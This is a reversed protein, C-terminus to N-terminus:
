ECAAGNLRFSVPVDTAVGSPKAGNLGFTIREGPEIRANWPLNTATVTTGTMTMQSSWHHAVSQGQPMDWELTWGDIPDPGINTIWMQSTFGTPWSGHVTYTVACTPDPEEPDEPVPAIRQVTMTISSSATAGDGDTATARIVHEGESLEDARRTLAAGTGIRGDRDSTWVLTSSLDGDEADVASGTFVVTQAGSVVAGDEPATVTVVPPLNPMAFADSTVVASNVGDSTIVQIRATESGPLAWRPVSVSTAEGDIALVTWSQGDDASYRLTHSLADGDADQAQWTFTVEDATGTTPVDVTVEPTNESVPVSALVETEERLEILAVDEISAPLVVAAVDGTETDPQGEVADGHTEVPTFRVAHVEAGDADLAVLTHTGEPDDTGPVRDVPVAPLVTTTGDPDLVARFLLGEGADAGDADIAPLARLPETLLRNWDQVGIWRQQSTRDTASCYSMLSVNTEPNVLALPSFTGSFRVDAGWVQSRRGPTHPGIAAVTVGNDTRSYQYEPARLRAEEGCWGLKAYPIGFITTAHGNEDANVSHDIGLTHAVEHAGRNRAHNSVREGSAGADWGSSVTGIALGGGDSGPIVGYWREQPSAWDLVRATVLRTNLIELSGPRSGVDLWLQRDDLNSFPLGYRIRETQEVLDDRSPSHLAGNETWHIGVVALDLDMGPEFEVQEACLPNQDQGVCRLGGPYELRLDWAGYVEEPPIRFNLTRGLTDRDGLANGDVLVGVANIPTFPSGPIPAGNRTVHLRATARVTTSDLTALYARVLTDRSNVVQVSNDLDQLGQTVELSVMVLPEAVCGAILTTFETTTRAFTVTGGGFVHPGYEARARPETFSGDAIAVVSFRDVGAAQASATASALTVGSNRPGDTSMCLVGTADDRGREVLEATGAVIADGPNTNSGMQSIALVDDVLADVADASDLVTLPVEVRVNEASTGRHSWQIVSVATSGDVPFNVRDRLAAAYGQLQLNWDSRDISGSGDLLLVLDTRDGAAAVAPPAAALLGFGTLALAFTLLARLARRPRRVM